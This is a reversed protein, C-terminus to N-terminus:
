CAKLDDDAIMRPLGVGEFKVLYAEFIQYIDRIIGPTGASITKGDAFTKDVLLCVRQNLNFRM